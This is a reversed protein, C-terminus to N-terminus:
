IKGTESQILNFVDPSYNRKLKLMCVPWCHLFIVQFSAKTTLIYGRAEDHDAFLSSLFIISFPILFLLKYASSCNTSFLPHKQKPVYQSRLFEIDKFGAYLGDFRLIQKLFILNAQPVITPSSLNLPLNFGSFLHFASIILSNSIVSNMSHVIVYLLLPLNYRHGHQLRQLFCLVGCVIRDRHDSLCTTIVLKLRLYLSFSFSIFSLLSLSSM